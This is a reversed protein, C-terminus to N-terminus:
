CGIRQGRQDHATGRPDFCQVSAIVHDPLRQDRDSIVTAAHHAKLVFCEDGSAQQYTVPCQANTRHVLGATHHVVRAARAVVAADAIGSVPVVMQSVAHQGVIPVRLDPTAQGTIADKLLRPAHQHEIGGIASRDPDAAAAHAHRMHGAAKDVIFGRELDTIFALVVSRSANGDHRNAPARHDGVVSRDIQAVAVVHGGHEVQIAALRGGLADPAGVAGVGVRQDVPVATQQAGHIRVGSLQEVSVGTAIGIHGNKLVARDHVNRRGTHHQRDVCRQTTRGSEAHHRDGNGRRARSVDTRREHPNCATAALARGRKRPHIPGATCHRSDFNRRGARIIGTRRCDRQHSSSGRCGRGEPYRHQASRRRSPQRFQAATGQHQPRGVTIGAGGLYAFTSQQKALRPHDRRIRLEGDIAAHKIQATM